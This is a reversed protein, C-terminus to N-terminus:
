TVIAKTRPKRWTGLLLLAVAAHFVVAFWLLVGGIHHRVDISALYLSVLANYFFMGRSAGTEGGQSTAWCALGLALLAIGAVRALPIGEPSLQFGFLLRVVVVPALLLLVGTAMETVSSIRLVHKTSLLNTQSV